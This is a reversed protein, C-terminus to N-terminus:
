DNIRDDPDKVEMEDRVEQEKLFDQVEKYSARRRHPRKTHLRNVGYRAILLRALIEAAEKGTM